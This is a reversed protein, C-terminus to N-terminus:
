TGMIDEEVARVNPGRNQIWSSAHIFIKTRNTNTNSQTPLPQGGTWSNMGLTHFCSESVQFLSTKFRKPTHHCVFLIIIKPILFHLSFLFTGVQHPESSRFNTAQQNILLLHIGNYCSQLTLIM